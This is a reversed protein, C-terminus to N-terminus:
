ETRLGREETREVLDQNPAKREADAIYAPADEALLLRQAQLAQVAQKVRTVYDQKTPYREALSPRPDGAAEREAKTKAFPIFQGLNGCMEGPVDARVAWGTHTGLPAVIDPLRIGALDNGDADTKPVLSTYQAPPSAAPASGDSVVTPNARGLHTVGPIKPFTTISEEASVLTGDKRTPVRSEPPLTGKSVWGDLAVLLARMVPGRFVPNQEQQCPGKPLREGLSTTIQPFLPFHQASAFFYLRVNDPIPADNGRVDTHILSASKRWYETATNTVMVFPDFGDGPKGSGRRLVGDHKGTLPDDQLGYAFPFWNEPFGYDQHSGQTRGPQGFAFNTFTKGAGGIDAILGDFVMRKQEDQNFGAFVHEQLYRGAQSIGLALAKRIGTEQENLRLPNATGSDDATQYRLFSVVDRTIAFGLGLVIPNKGEYFFEYLLGSQFGGRLRITQEDDFSWCQDQYGAKGCFPISTSERGEAKTRVSASMNGPNSSAVPYSLTVTQHDPPNSQQKGVFLDRVRGTLPKGNDLLIPLAAGIVGPKSDICCQAGTKGRPQWGSWVITHGQRMLFGNGADAATTPNNTSEGYPANNMLVLDVKNGRNIVGYFLKDNGKAPDVPKLIYFDTSYTVRGAANKPAKNLNVIGANEVTNPDVEGFMRGVIKEYRGSTGFERGEFTPSEVRDIVIKTIRAYAVSAALLSVLIVASCAVLEKRERAWTTPSPQSSPWHPRTEAMNGRVRDGEVESLVPREQLPLPSWLRLHLKLHLM